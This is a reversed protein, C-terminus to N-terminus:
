RTKAHSSDRKGEFWKRDGLVVSTEVQRDPISWYTKLLRNKEATSVQRFNRNKYFRIAWDAAAWTGILIPKDTKDCLFSLLQGAIGQNQEAPLTYAHRILAVDGVDQLGMVGALGGEREFGWFLIGSEIEELLENFPMYPEKWRDSPIVGKYREAAQNIIEFVTKIDGETCVRIM